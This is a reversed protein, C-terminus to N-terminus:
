YFNNLVFVSGIKFIIAQTRSNTSFTPVLAFVFSHLPLGGKQQERELKRAIVRNSVSTICAIFVFVTGKAGAVWSLRRQVNIDKVASVKTSYRSQFRKNHLSHFRLRDRKRRGGLRSNVYKCIKM